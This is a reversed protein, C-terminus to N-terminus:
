LVRSPSVPDLRESLIPAGASITFFPQNAYLSPDNFDVGKYLDPNKFDVGSTDYREAVVLSSFLGTFRLSAGVLPHFKM